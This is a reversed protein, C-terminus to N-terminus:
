LTRQIWQQGITNWKASRLGRELRAACPLLDDVGVNLVLFLRVDSNTTKQVREDGQLVQGVGSQRPYQAIKHTEVKGNGDVGIDHNRVLRRHDLLVLPAEFLHLGRLPVRM